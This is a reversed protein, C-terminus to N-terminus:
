PETVPIGAAKKARIDSQRMPMADIQLFLERLHTDLPARRKEGGDLGVLIVVRAGEDLAFHRRLAKVDAPSLAEADRMGRDPYLEFVRLDRDLVADRRTEIDALQAQVAPDADSPAALILLRHTWLHRDLDYASAPAALLLGLLWGLVRCGPRGRNGDHRNM